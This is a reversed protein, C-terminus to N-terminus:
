CLSHSAQPACVMNSPDKALISDYEELVKKLMADDKAVAEHFLGKLGMLRENDAGFRETLRALCLNASQEDGTRLCSLM